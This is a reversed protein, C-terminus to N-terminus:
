CLTVNVSIDCISRVQQMPKSADAMPGEFVFVGGMDKVQVQHTESHAEGGQQQVEVKIVVTRLFRQLASVRQLELRATFRADEAAAAFSAPVATLLDGLERKSLDFSFADGAVMAYWYVRTPLHKLLPGLKAVRAMYDSFVKPYM